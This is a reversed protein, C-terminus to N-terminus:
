SNDIDAPLKQPVVVYGSSLIRNYQRFADNYLDQISSALSDYPVTNDNSIRVM